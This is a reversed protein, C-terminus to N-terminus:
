WRSRVADSLAAEGATGAGCADRRRADLSQAPRGLREHVREVYADARRKARRVAEEEGIADGASPGHAKREDKDDDREREADDVQEDAGSAATQGQPRGNSCETCAQQDPEEGREEDCHTGEGVEEGGAVASGRGGNELKTVFGLMAPSPTSAITNPMPHSM